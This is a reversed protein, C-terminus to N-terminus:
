MRTALTAIGRDGHDSIHSQYRKSVGIPNTGQNNTNLRLAFLLAVHNCRLTNGKVDQTIPENTIDVRALRQEDVCRPLQVALLAGDIRLELGTDEFM